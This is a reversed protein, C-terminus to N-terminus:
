QDDKVSWGYNCVNFFADKAAQEQDEETADDDLEIEEVQHGNPWEVHVEIIM